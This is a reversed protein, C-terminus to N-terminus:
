LYTMAHMLLDRSEFRLKTWVSPEQNSTLARYALFTADKRAAHNLDRRREPEITREANLLLRLFYVDMNKQVAIRYSGGLTGKLKAYLNLLYGFCDAQICVTSTLSSVSENEVVFNLSIFGRYRSYIPDEDDDEDDAQEFPQTAITKDVKCV